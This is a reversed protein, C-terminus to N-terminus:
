IFAHMGNISDHPKQQRYTKLKHGGTKTLLRDVVVSFFFIVFLFFILIM